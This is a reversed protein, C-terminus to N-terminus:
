GPIQNIIRCWTQLQTPKMIDIHSSSSSTEVSPNTTHTSPHKLNDLSSHHDAACWFLSFTPKVSSPNSLHSPPLKIFGNSREFYWRNVPNDSRSRWVLDVPEGIGYEKGKYSPLVAFKDLYVIPEKDSIGENTVIAAAQYDGAIIVFRLRTRLRDFYRQYDLTKKFSKELLEGLKVLDLNDIGRIVKIPLGKRILTPTALGIDRRHHNLLISHKLSPSHSTQEYHSQRNFQHSVIIASSENPLYKLCSKAMSLNALSTPHSDSWRFTENIFEYESALNISLHPHGNRAPSPIGGERNIIMLRLPTLDLENEEEEEARDLNKQDITRPTPATQGHFASISDISHDLAEPTKGVAALGKAISKVVEDASVCITACSSNIAIPPIIPIEQNKIASKLVDLNDIYLDLGDDDPSRDDTLRLIGEYIPRSQGGRSELMASLRATERIIAQRRTESPNISYFIGSPKPKQPLSTTLSTHSPYHWAEDDLILISMLGLNQSLDSWGRHEQIKVLGTHQNPTSLILQAVDQKQNKNSRSMRTERPQIFTSSTSSAALTATTPMAEGTPFGPNFADNTSSKIKSDSPNTPIKKSTPAFSKLYLRPHAELVSLILERQLKDASPKLNSSFDDESSRLYYSRNPNPTPNLLRRTPIRRSIIMAMTFARSGFSDSLELGIYNTITSTSQDLRRHHPIELQANDAM